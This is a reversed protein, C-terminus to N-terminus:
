QRFTRVGEAVQRVVERMPLETEAALPALRAAVTEVPKEEVAPAVLLVIEGRVRERGFHEVAAAAPGRFLEEHLKTLERAVAVEREEGLEAALDRLTAALRHPAEYFIVTRGEGRLTRLAERRASGKAPLFGEFLFRDTPLGSLALATVLASPGPVATVPLGEQRCRRVLLFGPDAIAPMGADSILAM